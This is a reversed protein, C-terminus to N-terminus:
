ECVMETEEVKIHFLKEEARLCMGDAEEFKVFDNGYNEKWEKIEADACGLMYAIAQPKTQFSTRYVGSTVNGDNERSLWSVVYITTRM